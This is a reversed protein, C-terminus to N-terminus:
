RRDPGRWSKACNPGILNEKHRPATNAADIIDLVTAITANMHRLVCVNAVVKCCAGLRVESDFSVVLLAPRMM